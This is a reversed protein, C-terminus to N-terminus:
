VKPLNIQLFGNVFEASVRDKNVDCPLPWVVQYPGRSIERQLYKPHSDESFNAVKWWHSSRKGTVTLNRDDVEVRVNRINVGPLEITVVYNCRSETSSTTHRMKNFGYEAQASVGQGPRAFMPPDPSSSIREQQLPQVTIDSLIQDSEAPRSFMPAGSLNFSSNESESCPPLEEKISAQRMFYGQSASGQRAFFTRNDCRRIVSNLTSSCNVLLINSPHVEENGVFHGLLRNLRRQVVQSEM